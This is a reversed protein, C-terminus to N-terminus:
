TNAVLPRAHAPYAVEIENERHRALAVFTDVLRQDL